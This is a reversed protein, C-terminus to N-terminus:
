ICIYLQKYCIDKDQVETYVHDRQGISCEGHVNYSKLVILESPEQISCGGEALCSIPKMNNLEGTAYM